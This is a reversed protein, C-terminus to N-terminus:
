LLAINEAWTRQSDNSEIDYRVTRGDCMDKWLNATVSSKSVYTDVGFTDQLFGFKETRGHSKLEGSRDYLTEPAILDSEPDVLLNTRPSLNRIFYKTSDLMETDAAIPLRKLTEILRFSKSLHQIMLDDVIAPNITKLFEHLRTMADLAGKPDGTTLLHDCQRIHLQSQLDNVIVEDRANSFGAAWAQLIHDQARDFDYLYFNARSAERLLATDHPDIKLAEDFQDRASAHDGYSQMLFRGYFYHLQPQNDAQDLAAEYSTLAGSVDGLRYQVFAQVRYVEFYEPSTIKLEDIIKTAEEFRSRIALGSAHRLRRAALAESQTRVSFSKPDYKNRQGVGREEQFASSVGRFRGLISEADKPALRIVRAIYSRAFPKLRYLREVEASTTKEVLGFRSLEALGDEVCKPELFTIHQIINASIAQPVVSMTSLVSKGNEQLKEVVNEMCFKLAISPDAVIRAPDLGTSVGIAFWKVLLPKHALRTLYRKLAADSSGRLATIDYADILRRLYPLSESESFPPVKVSLDGGLPVRSTFVVKSDGPIDSAFEILTDDLVTELNDIVLLVKNNSILRKVREIPADEGAEFQEAVEEFIGLSTTIAGEIRTIENTTLRNTKASVWVIADFGHDNSHLLGYLTQLTLATKGDGGDGLVTVVPHRGLIKKKLDAELARRPQFGTDDYDPVPLNNLVEGQIDEDWLKVSVSLLADPNQGYEKYTAFLTPWYGPASLFEHALSFGISYEDTTLPRGHMTANRVPIAREFLNRKSLYYEASIGDLRAKHRLLISYKDGLDLGHLLDHDGGDTEENRSQLRLRAKGRENITLIDPCDFGCASRIRAVLDREIADFFIFLAVRQYSAM